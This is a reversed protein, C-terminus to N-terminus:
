TESVALPLRVTVTTGVDVESRISLEGGHLRVLEKSIALGLGSGQHSKSLENDVQEFPNTLRPLDAAPIGIGTDAVTFTLDQADATTSVTVTGARATFKVANSLLNLLVQRIARRDLEITPLQQPVDVVLNIGSDAATLAIVRLVEDMLDAPNLKERRLEYRGAEVRALDLIYNILQLLHAGSANIDAAYEQYRPTGLPGFSEAKLIDSFGIIANLPTRLEHSMNALFSSKSRNAAEAKEKASRLEAERRKQLTNDALLQVIGGDSTRRDRVLLIRGDNLAIDYSGATARHQALYHRRFSAADLDGLDFCDHEILATLLDEFALGPALEQVLEPFMAAFRQNWLVLRDGPDWLTLSDDISEVADHLGARRDPEQGSFEANVQRGSAFLKM